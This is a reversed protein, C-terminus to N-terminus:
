IKGPVDSAVTLHQPDPNLCFDGHPDTDMFKTLQPSCFALTFYKESIKEEIFYVGKPGLSYKQKKLNLIRLWKCKIPHL